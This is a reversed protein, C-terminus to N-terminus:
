NVLLGSESGFRAQRDGDVLLVEDDTHQRYELLADGPRIGLWPLLKVLNQGHSGRPELHLPKLGDLVGSSWRWGSTADADARYNDRYGGAVASHLLYGAKSSVIAVAGANGESLQVAASKADDLSSYGAANGLVADSAWVTTGGFSM